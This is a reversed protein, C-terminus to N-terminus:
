NGKRKLALKDSRWVRQKRPFQKIDKFIIKSIKTCDHRGEKRRVYKCRKAQFPVRIEKLHRLKVIRMSVGRPPKEM